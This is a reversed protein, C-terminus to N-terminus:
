HVKIVKFSGLMPGLVSQFQALRTATYGPGGSYDFERIHIKGGQVWQVDTSAFFAKPGARKGTSSENKRHQQRCSGIRKCFGENGM